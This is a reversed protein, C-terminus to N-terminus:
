WARSHGPTQEQTWVHVTAQVSYRKSSDLFVEQLYFKKPVFIVSIITGLVILDGEFIRRNCIRKRRIEREGRREDRRRMETKRQM